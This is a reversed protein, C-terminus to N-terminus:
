SPGGVPKWGFFFPSISIAFGLMERFRFASLPDPAAVPCPRRKTSSHTGKIALGQSQDQMGRRTRIGTGPWSSVLSLSVFRVLETAWETQVGSAVRWKGSLKREPDKNGSLRIITIWKFNFRFVPFFRLFKICLICQTCNDPIEQNKSHSLIKYIVTNVSIKM